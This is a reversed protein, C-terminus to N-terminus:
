LRKVHLFQPIQNHLLEVILFRSLYVSHTPLPRTILAGTVKGMDAATIAALRILEIEPLDCAFFPFGQNRNGRKV